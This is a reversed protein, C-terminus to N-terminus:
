GKMSQLVKSADHLELSNSKKVVSVTALNELQSSLDSLLGGM